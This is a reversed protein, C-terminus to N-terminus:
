PRRPPAIGRLFAVVAAIVQDGALLDYDNHNAGRITVMQRPERAARFLQESEGYPIIGDCDGAIVLLPCATADIRGISDFRDRLLLGVPLFPYHYRGVAALSTYPSRLILGAPPHATALEVAVGTGLSEGFYAIRM